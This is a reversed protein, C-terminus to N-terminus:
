LRQPFAHARLVCMFVCLFVSGFDPDKSLYTTFRTLDSLLGFGLIALSNFGMTFVRCSISRFGITRSGVTTGFGTRGRGGRLGRLGFCCGSSVLGKTAGARSASGSRSLFDGCNRIAWMWCKLDSFDSKGIKSLFIYWSALLDHIPTLRLRKWAHNWCYSSSRQCYVDHLLRLWLNSACWLSGLVWFVCRLSIVEAWLALDALVLFRGRADISGGPGGGPGGGFRNLGLSDFGKDM